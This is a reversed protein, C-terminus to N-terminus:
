ECFFFCFGKEHEPIVVLDAGIKNLLKGHVASKAKAVVWPIGLEKLTLTILTSTGVDTGCAVVAIDFNKAGVSKLVELDTADGTVAQTVSDAINQVKDEDDDIVLVENNDLGFLELALASGFRGLGVILFSKM